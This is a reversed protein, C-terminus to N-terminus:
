GGGPPGVVFEVSKSAKRFPERSEDVIDLTLTYRGPPMARVSFDYVQYCDSRPTLSPVPNERGRYNYIWPPKQGQGDSISM